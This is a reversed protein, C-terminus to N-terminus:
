TRADKSLILMLYDNSRRLVLGTPNCPPFETATALM